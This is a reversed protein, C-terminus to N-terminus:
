NSKLKSYFFFKKKNEDEVENFCKTMKRCSADSMWGFFYTILLRKVQLFVIKIFLKNTDKINEVLISFETSSFDSYNTISHKKM